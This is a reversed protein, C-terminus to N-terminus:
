SKVLRRFKARFAVAPEGPKVFIVEMENPGVLKATAHSMQGHDAFHLTKGDFGIVGAFAVKEAKKAPAKASKAPTFDTRTWERVGRFGQPYQEEIVITQKAQGKGHHFHVPYEAVWTGVLNPAKPDAASLPSSLCGLLAFALAISPIKM